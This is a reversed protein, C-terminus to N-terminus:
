SLCKMLEEVLYEMDERGYRQDIPLPLINETMKYELSDKATVEFVTPWLTPIYIKIAQLKKRIEGGNEVMLPYM